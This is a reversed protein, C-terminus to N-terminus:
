ESARHRLRISVDNGGLDSTDFTLDGGFTEVTLQTLWLGLGSGHHTPTIEEGDRIVDREHPPIRPGDDEIHIIVWEDSSIGDHGHDDTEPATPNTEVSDTAREIRVRVRPTASPNHKIANDVLSEVAYRLRSDALVTGSGAIEVEITANPSRKRRDDVVSQVLPAPDVHTDEDPRQQLVTRIHGAEDALRELEHAAREVTAAAEVTKEDGDPIAALLRTTHGAVVNANNRLNHRLIRNLVKLRRENRSIETLDTYVAFGGTRDGDADDGGSIAERDDADDGNAADREGGADEESRTNYPVGRYLFERLGHKTKRTVKQYNIEGSATNEDLAAAESRNWAPVVWENLSEGRIEDASYGFVDVFARNTDRVIPTGDVFEFEVVADQVHEILHRYRDADTDDCASQPDGIRTSGDRREPDDDRTSRSGDTSGSANERTM